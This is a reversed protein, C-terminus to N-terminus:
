VDKGSGFLQEWVRRRLENFYRFMEGYCKKKWEGTMINKYLEHASTDDKAMLPIYIYNTKSLQMVFEYILNDDRFHQALSAINLNRVKMASATKRFFLDDSVFTANERQALILADLHIYNLGLGVMLREGSLGDSIRCQVREDDTITIRKCKECFSLITEWIDCLKKNAPLMLPKGDVFSISGVSLESTAMASDYQERFFDIYSEPIEIFNLDRFAEIIDMRDILSLLVLTSLDPVYVQGSEDENIIQGAFFAEDERYLFYALAGIYRSYNRTVFADFPLGMDSGELHYYRLISAMHDSNDTLERIKEMLEKADKTNFVWVAGKFEDPYRQIKEFIYKVAYKERPMIRVVQYKVGDIMLIQRLGANHLKVYNKDPSALHKIDLSHNDSDDFESESDLCITLGNGSREEMNKLMVVVNGHASKLNVDKRLTRLNYNALSFYSKFINFDNKGNLLYLAKYAYFEADEEHGILLDAFAVTMCQEPDDTGMLAELYKGYEEADNKRLNVLISVISAALRRDHIEDYLEKSYKLSSYSMQKAGSCLVKIQLFLKRSVNAELFRESIRDAAELDDSVRFEKKEVKYEKNSVAFLTKYIEGVAFSSVESLDDITDLIDEMLTVEGSQALFTVIEVKQYFKLKGITEENLLPKLSAIVIEKTNEKTTDTYNICEFFASLDNKYEEITEKLVDYYNDADSSELALLYSAAVNAPLNTNNEEFDKYAEIAKDQQDTLILSLMYREAFVADSKWDLSAYIPVAKEREGDLELCLGYFYRILENNKVEESYTDYEAIAEDLYKKDTIGLHYSSEMTLGAAFLENQKYQKLSRFSHLTRLLEGLKEDDGRKGSQYINNQISIDAFTAFFLMREEKTDEYLSHLTSSAEQYRHLNLLALGYHLNLQYHTSPDSNKYTEQYLLVLQNWKGANGATLLRDIAFIQVIPIHKQFENVTLTLDDAAYFNILWEAESKYQDGCKQLLDDTNKRDFLAILVKYFYLEGAELLSNEIAENYSLLKDVNERLADLEFRVAQFRCAKLKEEILDKLLVNTDDTNGQSIDSLAAASVVINYIVDKTTGTFDATGNSVMRPLFYYEAIDSYERVLDLLDEDSIPELVIGADSLIKEVNQYRKSTTTLIKNCFLYVLDIKGKFYKVMQDASKKIQSYDASSQEFYKAQFSIRKQPSGDSHAPELVPLVEIGPTAHNTHLLKNGAFRKKFIERCMAEFQRTPNDNCVAFQPWTVNPKAM